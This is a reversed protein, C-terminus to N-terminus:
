QFQELFRVDNETFLRIDRIGYRLMALREIGLGFAFGTWRENDIGVALFVNPDVMGCGGLEIWGSGKCSTCGRGGCIWCRFEVEASPETFPFTWPRLRVAQDPGFMEKAFLLLITKLDAFSLGEDVALGEIQHFQFHHTADVEDPRFVKGPGVIRLPPKERLMHRIQITSTQSRLLLPEPAGSKSIATEELFFNESPDRAPHDEPINLAEFNFFPVEVEPGRALRFGLRAFIELLEETVQTLPHLSGRLPRTGPLTYDFFGRKEPPRARLAEERAAIRAEIEAKLDNVRKGYAGREAPALAPIRAMLDKLIGKRGLYKVRLRELAARDPAADIEAAEILISDIADNSM